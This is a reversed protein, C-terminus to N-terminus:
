KTLSNFADIGQGYRASPVMGSPHIQTWVDFELVLSLIHFYIWFLYNKRLMEEIM